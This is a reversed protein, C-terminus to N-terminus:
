SKCADQKTRQLEILQAYAKVAALRVASLARILFATEAPKHAVLYGFQRCFEKSLIISAICSERVACRLLEDATLRERNDGVEAMNMARSTPDGTLLPVALDLMRM